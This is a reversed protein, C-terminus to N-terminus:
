MSAGRQSGSPASPRIEDGPARHIGTRRKSKLWQPEASGHLAGPSQLGGLARHSQLQKCGQTQGRRGTPWQQVPLIPVFELSCFLQLAVPGEAPQLAGPGEM